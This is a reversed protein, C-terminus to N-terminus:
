FNQDGRPIGLITYRENNEMNYVDEHFIVTAIELNTKTDLEESRCKTVKQINFQKYFKTIRRLKHFFYIDKM